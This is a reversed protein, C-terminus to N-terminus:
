RPGGATALPDHVQRARDPEADYDLFYEVHRGQPLPFAHQKALRLAVSAPIPTSGLTTLGEGSGNLEAPAFTPLRFERELEDTRTDYVRLVWM